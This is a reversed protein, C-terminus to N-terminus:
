LAYRRSAEAIIRGDDDTARVTIFVDEKDRVYTAAIYKAGDTEILARDTFNEALEILRHSINIKEM